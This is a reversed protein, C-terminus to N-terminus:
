GGEPGCRDSDGWQQTAIFGDQENVVDAVDVDTLPDDLEFFIRHKSIEAIAAEGGREKVWNM